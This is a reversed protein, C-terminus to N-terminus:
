CPSGSCFKVTTSNKAAGSGVTNATFNGEQLNQLAQQKAAAPLNSNVIAVQADSLANNLANSQPTFTTSSPVNQIGSRFKSDWLTVNGTESDVSVVDAGHTGVADGYSVVTQNPLSAVTNALNLEGVYGNLQSNAINVNSSNLITPQYGLGAIPDPLNPNLPVGNSVRLPTLSDALTDGPVTGSGAAVLNPASPLQLGSTGALIGELAGAAGSAYYANTTSGSFYYALGGAIGGFTSGLMNELTAAGMSQQTSVNSITNPYIYFPTTGTPPGDPYVVTTAYTGDSQLKTSVQLGAAYVANIQTTCSPSMGNACANNLNVNNQTSLTSLTSETTCSESGSGPDCDALANDYKQQDSLSVVSASPPIHNLWNNVTENEAATLGGQVNAGAIGAALGGVAAAIATEVISPMNGTPDIVENTITSAAAGIAGYGVGSV